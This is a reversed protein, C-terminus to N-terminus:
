VPRQSASAGLITNAIAISEQVIAEPPGFEHVRMATMM